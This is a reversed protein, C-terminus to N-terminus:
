IKQRKRTSTNKKKNNLLSLQRNRKRLTDLDTLLDEIAGGGANYSSQFGTIGDMVQSSLRNMIAHNSSSTDYHHHITTSESQQISSDDNSSGFLPPPGVVVGRTSTSSTGNGRLPFLLMGQLDVRCCQNNRHHHHDTIAADDVDDEYDDEFPSLISSPDSFISLSSGCGGPSENGNSSTGYYYNTTSGLSLPSVVTNNEWRELNM